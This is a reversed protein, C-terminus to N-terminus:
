SLLKKKRIRSALVLFIYLHCRLFIFIIITNRDLVEWNINEFDFELSYLKWAKKIRKISDSLNKEFSSRYICISLAKLALSNITDSYEDAEGKSILHSKLKRVMPGWPDYDGKTHQGTDSQVYHYIVKDAFAVFNANKLVEYSFITEEGVSLSTFGVNVSNILDRRIVKSMGWPLHGTMQSCIMQKRTLTRKEYVNLFSIPSGDEREKVTDIFILDAKKEQSVRLVTELFDYEWYDDADLFAVYEGSSKKIGTNRAVGPGANRQKIITIQEYEKSYDNIIEWSNDCSGDDIIILEFDKVTQKLVSEISRKLTKEANYVPMIISFLVM